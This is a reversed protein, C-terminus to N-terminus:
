MNRIICYYLQYFYIHICVIRSFKTKIVGPAITNVRIGESALIAAAM